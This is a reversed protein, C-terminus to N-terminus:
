GTVTNHPSVQIKACVDVFNGHLGLQLLLAIVSILVLLNYFSSKRQLFVFVMHKRASMFLM